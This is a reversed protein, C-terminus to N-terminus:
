AFLPPDTALPVGLAALAALDAVTDLDVAVLPDDVAVECLAAGLARLEERLPVREDAGYRHWLWAAALAVPHGGRGRHRPRAAVKGAASAALLHAVTTASAPPCDVPTVLVRAGDGLGDGLRRAAAALSGAPGLADAEDSVVLEAGTPPDLRALRSAVDARTVVLVRESEAGLRARAHAWALPMPGTSSPWALLAKPGGLRRGRGAALVVTVVRM